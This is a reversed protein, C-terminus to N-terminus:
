EDQEEKKELAASMSNVVADVTAEMKRKWAKDDERVPFFRGLNLVSTDAFPLSLLTALDDKIGHLMAQSDMFVQGFAKGLGKQEKSSDLGSSPILTASNPIVDALGTGDENSSFLSVDVRLACNMAGRGSKYLDAYTDMILKMGQREPADLFGLKGERSLVRLNTDQLCYHIFSEVMRNNLDEVRKGAAEIVEEPNEIFEEISYWGEVDQVIKESSKAIVTTKIDMASFFRNAVDCGMGHSSIFGAESISRGSAGVAYVVPSLVKKGASDVVARDVKIPSCGQNYLGYNGLVEAVASPDVVKKVRAGGSVRPARVKKPLVIESTGKLNFVGKITNFRAVLAPDSGEEPACLLICNEIKEQEFKRVLDAKSIKEDLAMLKETPNVNMWQNVYAVQKTSSRWKVPSRYRSGRGKWHYELKLDGIQGNNTSNPVQTMSRHIWGDIDVEITLGSKDTFSRNYTLSCQAIASVSQLVEVFSKIDTAAGFVASMGADVKGMSDHIASWIATKTRDTYRLAERSPVLDLQGNGFKLVLARDSRIRKEFEEGAMIDERLVPYIVGDILAVVEVRNNLGPVTSPDVFDVGGLSFIVPKSSVGQHGNMRGENGRVEPRNEWFFIIRAAADYFLGVDNAKVPIAIETGNQETTDCESVLNISASGSDMQAIYSRQVGDVFTTIAFNSTYSFGSKSGLGFGGTMSNDKAKTSTGLASFIEDIIKPSMGPGFDRVRFSMDDSQPLHIVFENDKKGAQRCADRANSVYEQVLTRIPNKYLATMLIGMVLEDNGVRIQTKSEILSNSVVSKSTDKELKM